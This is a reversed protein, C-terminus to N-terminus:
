FGQVTRLVTNDSYVIIVAGKYNSNVEQGLLNITKVISKANVRNDISIIDSYIFVGDLDTQKLRYYNVVEIYNADILSYVSENLTTGAGIHIGVQDFDIGNVSREVTFYDNNKEASTVWTLNNSNRGKNEGEFRVLSVPLLTIPTVGITFPSFTSVASSSTITGATNTGVSGSTIKDWDTTGDYHAIALKTYDTVGNAAIWTVELVANVPSTGSRNLDWYEKTSISELEAELDTDPHAVGNYKATWVTAGTGSPTTAISRYVTGNGIPYIFKAATNTRKLVPGNVHCTNSPTGAVTANEDFEPYFSATSTILGSTFILSNDIMVKSALTVSGVGTKAVKFNYFTEGAYVETGGSHAISVNDLYCDNGFASTFLFAVFLTAKNEAGVPLTVSQNTWSNALGTYRFIDSGASVWTSGDTSYQVRVKDSNVYVNDNTWDFKVAINTLGVTSVSSTRRLRVQGTSTATYSNFKVFYSGVSAVFGTPNASATVYTCAPDVGGDTIIASSWGSPIIGGNEFSETFISTSPATFSSSTASVTSTATGDFTITSAEETFTGTNTWNGAVTSTVAGGYLNTGTGIVVNGNIDMAGDFYAISTGSLTMNGGVSCAVGFDGTATSSITSNGAITLTANVDAYASGSVFLSGNVTSASNVTKTGSTELYLNGYTLPTVTQTTGYYRTNSTANLSYTGYFTPFDNTTGIRLTAGAAISFTGGSSAFRDIIKSAIDFVSSGNISVNGDYCGFADVAGSGSLTVTPNNVSGINLNEALFYYVGGGINNLVVSQAVTGDFTIHPEYAALTRGYSGVTLNRMLKFTGPSTIDSIIFSALTGGDDIFAHRGVTLGGPSGGLDVTLSTNSNGSSGKTHFNGNVTLLSTVVDLKGVTNNGSVAFYLAGVTINASLTITKTSTLIIVCSDGSSPVASPSWNSATNFNNNTAGTWTRLTQASSYNFFFFVAFLVGVSSLIKRISSTSFLNWNM